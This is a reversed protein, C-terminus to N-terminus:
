LGLPKLLQPGYETANVQLEQAQTEYTTEVFFFEDTGSLKVFEMSEKMQQLAADIKATMPGERLKPEMQDYSDLIVKQLNDPLGNFTELNMIMHMGPYFFPVDVVYDVVEPMSYATWVTPTSGFGDFVGTDLATYCDGAQTISYSMGLAEAMAKGWSTTGTLKLGKLGARTNVRKNFGIYFSPVNQAETRGLFFLGAKAYAERWIDYAGGEREEQHSVRSINLFPGSPVLSAFPSPATQAMFIVGKAVSEGQQGIPIVDTGGKLEITLQGNSNTKILDLLEQFIVMRTETKPHMGVAALVIPQSPPAPSPAPTSGPQACAGILTVAALVLVLCTGVLIKSLQERKM